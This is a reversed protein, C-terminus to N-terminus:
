HDNSGHGARDTAAAIEALRHATGEDALLTEIDMEMRYSWNSDSLTGPLNVRDRSGIADQFPVIALTSPAAYVAKLLADRVGDDFGREA